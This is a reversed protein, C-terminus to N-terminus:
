PLPLNAPSLAYTAIGCNNSRNRSMYIYGSLGWSTGLSTKVIWYDEATDSDTGYGVIVVARTPQTSSCSPEYYVGSTYDAFSSQSADIFALVPGKKVVYAKLSEEDGSPILRVGPITAVVQAANYKCTEQKGVYPYSAETELGSQAIMGKLMTIPNGGCTCVNSDADCDVIQQESLSLLMGANISHYGEVLGTIGFASSAKCTGENKVATVAGKSRWDTSATATTDTPLTTLKSFSSIDITNGCGPPDISSGGCNAIIFSFSILLCVLATIQGMIRM